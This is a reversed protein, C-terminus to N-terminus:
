QCGFKNSVIINVVYVFLNTRKCYIIYLGKLCYYLFISIHQLRERNVTRRFASLNLAQEGIALEGNLFFLFVDLVTFPYLKVRVFQM